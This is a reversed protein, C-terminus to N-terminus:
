KIMSASRSRLSSARKPTTSISRPRSTPPPLLAETDARDGLDCLKASLFAKDAQNRLAASAELDGLPQLICWMSAGVYALYRIQLPVVTQPLQALFGLLQYAAGKSDGALSNASFTHGDSTSNDALGAAAAQCNAAM